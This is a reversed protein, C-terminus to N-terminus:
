LCGSWENNAFVPIVKEILLNSLMRFCERQNRESAKAATIKSPACATRLAWCALEEATLAPRQDSEAVQDSLFTGAAPARTVMLLPTSTTRSTVGGASFPKIILPLSLKAFLLSISSVVSHIM